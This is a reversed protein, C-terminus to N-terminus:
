RHRAAREAPHLASLGPASEEADELGRNSYLRSLLEAPTRAAALAAASAARRIVPRSM